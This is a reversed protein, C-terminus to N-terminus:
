EVGKRIVELGFEPIGYRVMVEPFDKIPLQVLTGDFEVPIKCLERMIQRHREEEDLDEWLFGYVAIIYVIQPNLLNYPTRIMFIKASARVRHGSIEEVCLLRKMDVHKFRGAHEAITDGVITILEDSVIFDM